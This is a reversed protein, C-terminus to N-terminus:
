DEHTFFTASVGLIGALKGRLRSDDKPLAAETGVTTDVPRDRIHRRVEDLRAVEVPVADLDMTATPEKVNPM